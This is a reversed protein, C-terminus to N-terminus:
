LTCLRIPHRSQKRALEKPRLFPVYAKYHRSIGAIEEDDTSVLIKDLYKSKLAQEITWAILPKGASLKINKKPIGKSGGRATILGLIRKGKYM